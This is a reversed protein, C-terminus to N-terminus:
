KTWNQGRVSIFSLPFCFLFSVVSCDQTGHNDATLGTTFTDFEQAAYTTYSLPLVDTESRRVKGQRCRVQLQHTVM